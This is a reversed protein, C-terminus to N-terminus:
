SAETIQKSSDPLSRFLKRARWSYFVSRWSMLASAVFAATAWWPMDGFLGLGVVFTLLMAVLVGLRTPQDFATRLREVRTRTDEIESRREFSGWRIWAYTAAVSGILVTGIVVPIWM